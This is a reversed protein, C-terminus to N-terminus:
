WTKLKLYRAMALMSSVAGVIVGGGVAGTLMLLMTSNETFFTYTQSFEPQNAVKGGLSVVMAYVASVAVLGAIIGYLSAEVLFPGRIYRPTAGILKMIRIEDSRTYTTMRITNFIILVSVGGFVVASVVSARLIFNRASQAREITTEADTKGTSVSEVIDDFRTQKAIDAVTNIQDLDNASVELSAPLSDGGILELGEVVGEEDGFVQSFRQQAENTDVYDVSDVFENAALVRQLELRDEDSAEPELYVLVQLNKSLENIANKATVNLVVASLIITIAVVMVATAAISLWSNRIFNRVGTVIIRGFTIFM